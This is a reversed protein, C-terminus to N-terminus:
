HVAQLMVDLNKEAGNRLVTVKVKEGIKFKELVTFLDQSDRIANGNVAIIQDGLSVDGTRPNETTSKMGAKEAESGPTFDMVLVGKLDYQRAVRDALTRIGLGPRTVRGERILQPVIRNVTDVPIALGIGAYSGSNSYIASTVGILRGASDLLPGGSNGPNIAADTQIVGQITRDTVSPIERGLGSIVGTTLTHDLGFPNGIAFVKQGVQLDASTGVLLAPLRDKPANIKLVALDQDPAVGVLEGDWDSNDALTVKASRANQVVHFNTVIYGGDGWVFGSGTGKPVEVVNLNFIDRQATMTTIHVVSPSSQRFLEITAKEDQSLDGRPTIAHPAARPNHLKFIKGDVLWWVLGAIMILFVVLPWNTGAPRAPAEPRYEYQSM